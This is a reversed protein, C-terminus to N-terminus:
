QIAYAEGYVFCTINELAYDRLIVERSVGQRHKSPPRLWDSVDNHSVEKTGVFYLASASQVKMELYYNGKHEVLPTGNIRQGWKRPFASFDPTLDERVRQRNVASEYVWNIVGNVASRKVLNDFYPNDTKRMDPVTEAHITVIAAGRWQLLQTRFTELTLTKM